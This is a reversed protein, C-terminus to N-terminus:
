IPTTITITRVSSTREGDSNSVHTRVRVVQGVAFPGITNGSTIRLIAQVDDTKKTRPMVNFQRSGRM